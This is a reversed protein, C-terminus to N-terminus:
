TRRCHAALARWETESVFPQHGGPIKVVSLRSLRKSQEQYFWRGPDREGCLALIDCPMGAWDLGWPRTLVRQAEELMTNVADDQRMGESAADVFLGVRGATWGERREARACFGTPNEKLRIALQKLVPRVAMLKTLRLWAPTARWADHTSDSSANVLGVGAVRTPALAALHLAHPGGASMGIVGFRDIRLGDALHLLDSAFQDFGPDPSKTSQGYGPRDVAILRLGFRKAHDDAYAAELRSSGAGHLYFVPSGLADGYRNWALYRGDPLKFLQM